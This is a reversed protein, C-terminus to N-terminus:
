SAKDLVRKPVEYVDPVKKVTTLHRPGNSYIFTRLNPYCADKVNCYSCFMDLKMNGSKGDPIPEFSREPLNPGNIVEKRREYAEELDWEENAYVDLCIHGLTKDVVLFCARTKDTVLPDDKGAGLYSQLQVVYGFPDDEELKHDKFKNFSYTSASKVDTLVGDIVADRHGKIGAIEQTDQRGEVKHGSAEALFLLLEELIDGYLFKLIAQPPLPEVVEPQNIELYLKRECPSGINSMRLTPKYESPSLRSRLLSAMREGFEAFMEDPIDDRKNVLLNEIDEVLTDIKKENSM